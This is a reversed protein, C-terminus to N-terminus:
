GIRQRRHNSMFDLKPGSPIIGTPNINKHSQYYHAKVNDMNVTEAIGPVQYLDRLYGWINPYDVLRRINCKFHGVYVADFRVLTTFLRWDAETISNGTLYRRTELRQEIVNLADFLAIVAEKYADQSTAFGARYVGNNIAPYIFDNLEDIEVLLDPPSFDIPLAGLHDFASNFMRIIESSENSVITQKQKDWLIPVTVRGTFNSLAATYLEHVYTANFIPDSIVDKGPSFSWGQDGM